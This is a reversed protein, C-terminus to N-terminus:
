YGRSNGDKETMFYDKKKQYYKMDESPNGNKKKM